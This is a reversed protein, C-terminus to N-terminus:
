WTLRSGFTDNGFDRWPSWAVPYTSWAWHKGSTTTVYYTNNVFRNNATTGFAATRGVLGTMSSRRVRVVNDHVFLDAVKTAAPATATRDIDVACIGNSGDTSRVTNGYIEVNQSNIVHIQAGWFCSKGAYTSANNRVVNRRIIGDWSVEYFIGIGTNDEVLNDEFRVSRVNYDMWLGNGTNHHVWNGRWVLNSSGASGGIIKVGGAHIGTSYHGTNNYAIKNGAILAGTVPGGTIGIRRNHHIHNSQLTIGNSIVIGTTNNRINNRKVLWNWGASIAEGRFHTLGVGMVVVNKQGSSGGYGWLGRDALNQGDLVAGAAGIIRDYSKVHVGKTLRYTGKALCFTTGQPRSDIKRQLNDGPRVRVGTCSAASAPTAFLGVTFLIVSCGIVVARVTSHRELRANGRPHEFAGRLYEVLIRIMRSAHM